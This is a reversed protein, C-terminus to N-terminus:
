SSLKAFHKMWIWGVQSTSDDQNRALWLEGKEGFVDFIEGAVYTLYPYGAERRARDINFEYLSAALFLVAPEKPTHVEPDQPPEHENPNDSMPMASSFLGSTRAPAVSPDDGDSTAKLIEALLPGDISLRPLSPFAESGASQQSDGAASSSHTVQQLSRSTDPSEPIAQGSFASDARHRSTSSSSEIRPSQFLQSVGGFDQSIKPSDEIISRRHTSSNATSTRRTSSMSPRRPSSMGGVGVSPTNFNVLNVTDALLAGNCIGLSLVQAEALSYDSSWDSVLKEFADPFTDVHAGVKKQMISWWTTQIQVFNKLCAEMLKATLAYLRPLEEKLTENLATYQEGQETTKRDPKDGRDILAKYRGYDILRKDRKKMVRQPGEHIKLLTVMPQIVSNRVVALHEPLDVTIIERVSNKFLRWKAELEHYQSPSVNMMGEISLAFDNLQDMARTTERTYMEVDRMVVQLQFFGDGFSQSLADYEKDEVLDSMGVQQRFKETRRGFAKSLGARVDSQNRKRGVVQGVVDVRKKMDNIRISVNTVETRANLLQAHDPHDTPTAALLENLLLPYKLIRQVPKVLLSDLDWATTLDAAWDRCERLWIDVKPNGQLIQLKKNAADYNKLYESYVREMQAMNTVFAQGISTARDKELDSFAADASAEEEVAQSASRDANRKSSWRQSKPMIYISRAAQKLADQFSQSFQVIDISNGFLIKVDDPSLDLCSGSTGKYIDDVVKMDRGFAHETDVLEKIVNRRKKLRRQEPSPSKRSDMRLPNEASPALSTVSSGAAQDSHIPEARRLSSDESSGASYSVAPLHIQPIQHSHSPQPQSHINHFAAPRGLSAQSEVPLETNSLGLGDNMYDPRDDAPTIQDDEAAMQMWDMVSPSADEWDGPGVLSAANSHRNSAVSPDQFRPVVVPEEALGDTSADIRMAPVRIDQRINEQPRLAYEMQRPVPTQRAAAPLVPSACTSPLGPSVRAAPLNHDPARGRALEELYLQTVRRSDWKGRKVLIPPTSFLNATPIQSTQLTDPGMLGLDQLLGDEHEDDAFSAPRTSTASCPETPPAETGPIPRQLVSDDGSDEDCHEDCTSEQNHISSSWSSMSWRHDSPGAAKSEHQLPQAKRTEQHDLSSSSRFFSPGPLMIQISEKDDNESMSCEPEDCSESSSSSERIQMIHNLLTRHTQAASPKRPILHIQPEPDIHTDDSSASNPAAGDPVRLGPAGNNSLERQSGDPLGLTPSDMTTNPVNNESVSVSTNLHLQPMTRPEVSDDLSTETSETVTTAMDIPLPHNSAAASPTTQEDEPSEPVVTVRTRRRLEAEEEEKRENEQVSRNFAQQIRQRRTEFDVNGLEPLQHQRPRPTNREAGRDAVKQLSSLRKGIEPSRPSRSSSSGANSITQRPRSSRLPPSKQPPPASVYAQLLKSRDAVSHRTRGVAMDRRGRATMAFSASADEKTGTPSNIGSPKPLRSTGKPALSISNSRSSFTANATPSLTESGSGSSLRRSSIPIRSRSNPSEPSGDGTKWLQLPASVAMEANWPEALSESYSNVFDSRSRRHSLSTRGGSQVAELSNAQGLYWATPTLPTRISSPNALDLFAPNPSPISGDSGRRRLHAPIGLGPTTLQTNLTLLEGFLPRRSHSEPIRQYLPPPVTTLPRTPGQTQPLAPPPEIQVAPSSVDVIPPLSERLQRRRSLSSRESGHESGTPSAARSTSRSASPLPLVSDSTNNFRNILDRFSPQRSNISTGASSVNAPGEGLTPSDSVSRPIPRRTRSSELVNAPLASVRDNPSPGSVMGDRAGTVNGIGAKLPASLPPSQRYYDDPDPSDRGTQDEPQGGSHLHNSSISDISEFGSRRSSPYTTHALTSSPSFPTIPSVEFPSRADNVSQSYSPASSQRGFPPQSHRTGTDQEVGSGSM